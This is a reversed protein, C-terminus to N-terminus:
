HLQLSSLVTSCGDWSTDDDKDGASVLCFTQGNSLTDHKIAKPYGGYDIADCLISFMAQGGKYVRYRRFPHNAHWKDDPYDYKVSWNVGWGAPVTFSFDDCTYSSDSSYSGKTLESARKTRLADNRKNTAAQVLQQAASSSSCGGKEAYSQAQSLADDTVSTADIPDGLNAIVTDSVDVAEGDGLKDGLTVTAQGSKPSWLQGSAGLPSAPFTLDYKGQKLVLGDGHSDVYATTDVSNGDLDEGKVAVPLKSAGADTDWSSAKIGIKVAHDSHAADDAAKTAAQQDAQEQAARQQPAIVGLYLAAGGGAVLALALGAAVVIRARSNQPEQRPRNPHRDSSPNIPTPPVVSPRVATQDAVPGSQWSAGPAPAPAAGTTAQGDAGADVRAGCETCFTAGDELKAGCNNCYM